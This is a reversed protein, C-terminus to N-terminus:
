EPVLRSRATRPETILAGAQTIAGQSGISGSRKTALHLGRVATGAEGACELTAVAAILREPM